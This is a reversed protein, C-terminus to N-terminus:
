HAFPDELGYHLFPLHSDACAAVQVYCLIKHTFYRGLYSSSGYCRRRHGKGRDFSNTVVHFFYGVLSNWLNRLAHQRGNVGHLIFERVRLESGLARTSRSSSESAVCLGSLQLGIQHDIFLLQIIKCAWCM